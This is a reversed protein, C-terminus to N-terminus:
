YIHRIASVGDAIFARLSVVKVVDGTHPAHVVLQNGIYMGVHGPAALSGHGGPILILDGPQIQQVDVAIGDTMQQSTVRHIVVGAHRWAAQTLGSCDYATPGTGGWLYPKGLQTLAFAVSRQAALSADAPIQYSVPLGFTGETGPDLVVTAGGCDLLAADNEIAILVRNASELRALYNGGVVGSGGNAASPRGTFASRQVAQAAEWPVLAEWGPLALLADLFLHTSEVPDMRAAATGWGPRQQFLGLSDHDTGVGQSPLGNGSPDNPNSLVLLDSEALAVALAILGASHGARAEATRVIIRANAAQADSLGPLAGQTVRTPMRAPASAAVTVTSAVGLLGLGCAAVLVGAVLVRIGAM